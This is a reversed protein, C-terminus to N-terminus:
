ALSHVGNGQQRGGFLIGYLKARQRVDRRGQRAITLLTGPNIFIVKIASDM